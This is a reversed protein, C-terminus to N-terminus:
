KIESESEFRSTPYLILIQCTRPVLCRIELECKGNETWKIWNVLEHCKNRSESLAVFNRIGFWDVTRWIRLACISRSACSRFGNYSSCRTFFPLFKTSTFLDLQKGGRLFSSFFFTPFVKELEEKAVKWNNQRQELTTSSGDSMQEGKIARKNRMREGAVFFFLSFLPPNTSQLGNQQPPPWAIFSKWCSGCAEYPFFSGM